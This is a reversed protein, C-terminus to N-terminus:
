WSMPLAGEIANAIVRYGANNPHDDPGWPPATCMWTLTCALAVNQPVKGVKALEVMDSNDTKFAGPVNAMAVGGARYVSTLAANLESMVTLTLNAQTIGSAPVLYDALFPDEYLVGVFRVSPGAAAKLRSIVSPMDKRVAAIGQNACAVNVEDSLLCARVDNFGLDITVLGKQSKSTKLYNLSATMQGGVGKYCADRSFQMSVSTEGPCGVQRLVLSTGRTAETTVIDNAYGTSTRHGNHAPIGTPQFGLSSSGGVALYFGSSTSANANSQSSSDFLTRVGFAVVAVIVVFLVWIEVRRKTVAGVVITRRDLAARPLLRYNLRAWPLM